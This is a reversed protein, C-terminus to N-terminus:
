HRKEFKGPTVHGRSMMNVTVWFTKDFYKLTTCINQFDKSFPASKIYLSYRLFHGNKLYLGDFYKLVLPSPPPPPPNCFAIILKTGNFSNQDFFTLILM